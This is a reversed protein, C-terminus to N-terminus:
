GPSPGYTQGTPNEGARALGAFRVQLAAEDGHLGRLELWPAIGCLLRGLAELHTFQAREAQYGSQSEVPMVARLRRVALHTLVPSAIRQLVDLWYTRDSMSM